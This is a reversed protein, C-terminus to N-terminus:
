LGMEAACITSRLTTEAATLGRGREDGGNLLAPATQGDSGRREITMAARKLVLRDTSRVAAGIGAVEIRRHRCVTAPTLSV